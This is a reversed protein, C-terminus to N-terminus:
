GPPMLVRKLGKCNSLTAPKRHLGFGETPLAKSLEFCQERRIRKQRPVPLKDSLLPGIGSFTGTSWRHRLLEDFQRQAHRALIWAPAVLAHHPRQAIQSKVHRRARDAVVYRLAM